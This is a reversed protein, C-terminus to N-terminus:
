RRGHLRRVGGGGIWGDQWMNSAKPDRQQISRISCRCWVAWSGLILCWLVREGGGGAHAYPHFFAKSTGFLGIVRPRQTSWGRDGQWGAGPTSSEHVSNSQDGEAAGICAAEGSAGAQNWAWTGYCRPRPCVSRSWRCPCCSAETWSTLPTRRPAGCLLYLLM